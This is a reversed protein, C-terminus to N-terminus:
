VTQVRRCLIIRRAVEANMVLAIVVLTLLPQNVLAGLFIVFVRVNRGLRLYPAGRLKRAMLGDYKDTTYGASTEVAAMSRAGLRLESGRRADDRSM